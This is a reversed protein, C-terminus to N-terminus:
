CKNRRKVREVKHPVKTKISGDSTHYEVVYKPEVWRVVIAMHLRGLVMFWEDSSLKAKYGIGWIDMSVKDIQKQRKTM